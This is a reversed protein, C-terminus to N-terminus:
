VFASFTAPALHGLALENVSVPLYTADGLLNDLHAVNTPTGSVRFCKVQECNTYHHHLVFTPKMDKGLCM